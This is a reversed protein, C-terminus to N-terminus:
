VSGQTEKPQLLLGPLRPRRSAQLGHVKGQLGTRVVLWLCFVRVREEQKVQNDLVNLVLAELRDAQIPNWKDTKDIFVITQGQQGAVCLTVPDRVERLWWNIAIFTGGILFAAGLRLITNTAAKLTADSTERGIL